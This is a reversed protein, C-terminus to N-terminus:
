SGEPEADLSLTFDLTCSAGVAIDDKITAGVDDDYQKGFNIDSEDGEEFVSQADASSTLTYASTSGVLWLELIDQELTDENKYTGTFTIYFTKSKSSEDFVCPVARWYPTLESTDRIKLVFYSPLAKGQGNKIWSLIEEKLRDKIETVVSM